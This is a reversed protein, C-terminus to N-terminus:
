LLRRFTHTELLFKARSFLITVRLHDLELEILENAGDHLRPVFQDVHLIQGVTCTGSGVYVGLRNPISRIWERDDRHLDEALGLATPSVGQNLM